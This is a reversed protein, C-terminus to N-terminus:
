GEGGALKEVAARVEALAARLEPPVAGTVNVRRTMQNLNVGVRNLDALVAADTDARAAVVRHGLVLRRVYDSLTLGARAAAERVADLEDPTLRVPPIAASRKEARTLRPRGGSRARETMGSWGPDDLRAVGPRWPAGAGPLRKQM